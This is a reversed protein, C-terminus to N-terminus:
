KRIAPACRRGIRHKRPFHPILGGGEQLRRYPPFFLHKTQAETHTTRSLVCKLLDTRVQADGPLATRWINASM